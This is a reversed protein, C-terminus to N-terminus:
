YIPLGVLEKSECSLDLGEVGDSPVVSTACGGDWVSVTGDSLGLRVKEGGSSVNVKLGVSSKLLTLDFRRSWFGRDSHLSSESESFSPLYSNRGARTRSPIDRRLKPMCTTHTATRQMRARLLPVYELMQSSMDGEMMDVAGNSMHEPSVVRKWV